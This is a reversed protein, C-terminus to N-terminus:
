EMGAWGVYMCINHRTRSKGCVHLGAVHGVWGGTFHTDPTKGSYVPPAHCQSGIGM